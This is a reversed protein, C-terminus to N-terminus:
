YGAVCSGSLPTDSPCAVRAAGVMAPSFLVRYIPNPLALLDVNALVMADDIVLRDGFHMGITDDDSGVTEVWVNEIHGRMTSYGSPMRPSEGLYLVHVRGGGGSGFGGVDAVVTLGDVALDLNEGSVYVLYPELFAGAALASDVVEARYEVRTRALRLSSAPATLEFIVPDHWNREPADYRIGTYTASFDESDFSLLKGFAALAHAGFTPAAFYYANSRLLVSGISPKPDAGSFFYGRGFGAAFPPETFLVQNDAFYAVQGAPEFGSHNNTVYFGMNVQDSMTNRRVVATEFNNIELGNDGGLEGVSDTVRVYGTKALDGIHFNSSAFFERSFRGLTHRTRDIRINEIAINPRMAQDAFSGGIMVGCNGGRLDTDEVLVNSIRSPADELDSPHAVLLGIGYRTDRDATSSTHVNYASVKRIVINDFSVRDRLRVDGDIYNGFVTHNAGRAAVADISFGELWILRFIDDDSTRWADFARPAGPSLVITAGYGLIKVWAAADPAFRPVVADYQYRGPRLVVSGGTRSVSDIAVQLATGADPGRYLLRGSKARAIYGNRSSSVTVKMKGQRGMTPKGRLSIEATTLQAIAAPDTVSAAWRGAACHDLRREATNWCASGDVCARGLPDAPGCEAIGAPVWFGRRCRWARSGRDMVAAQGDECIAPLRGGPPLEVVTPAASSSLWASALAVGTLTIRTCLAFRM